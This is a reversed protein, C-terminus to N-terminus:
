TLWWAPDGPALSEFCRQVGELDAFCLRHAHLLIRPPAHRDVKKPHYLTDGVIPHGVAFLHVRVQHTRGTKTIVRLLSRNRETKLLEYATVAEKGSQDPRAAMRNPQHRSRTITFSIERSSQQPVGYVVAQYEKTITREEFQKKLHEYATQTKAVVMVGSVERDLRHVIGPRVPDEGVSAIAPLYSILQNVLTHADTTEDPHVLLGAPKDLVLFNKDEYIVDFTQKPDPEISRQQDLSGRIEVADGATVAFHPTVKKSNVLIDGNKIARQIAGRSINSIHQAIFVDLRQKPSEAPVTVTNSM